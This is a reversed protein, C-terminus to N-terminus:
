GGDEGADQRSVEKLTSEAVTHGAWHSSQYLYVWLILAANKLMIVQKELWHLCLATLKSAVREKIIGMQKETGNDGCGDM